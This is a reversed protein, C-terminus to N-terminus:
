RARDAAATPSEPDCHRAALDALYARDLKCHATLRFRGVALVRDPVMYAPLTRALGSRLAAEDVDPTEVLLVLRASSPSHSIRVAAARTGGLLQAATHEIEGLEVRYGRIKVQADARGRHSLLGTETATVLDGTRYWRRGDFEAFRGDNLSPDLYGGFVQPGSLLLEGDDTIHTDVTPHPSGIPITPGAPLPERAPIRLGTVWVTAEAPGYTNDLVADPAAARALSAAQPSLPEGCSVIYRVAPLSGPPLHGARAANEILSPTCTWVSVRHRALTHAATLAQMRPVSVLAAGTAWAGWLEFVSLDFTLGHSQSFVDGPGVRYNPLVSTLFADVNAHTIAVGKPRGTSGSTFILYALATTPVRAPQGSTPEGTPLEHGDIVVSDAAAATIAELHAAASPDDGPDTRVIYRVGAQSVIAANRDAPVDPSLPLVTSGAHLVALYARYCNTEREGLVAVIEGTPIRRALQSAQHAMQAYTLTTDGDVLCPENPFRRATDAFRQALTSGGVRAADSELHPGGGTHSPSDDCPQPTHGSAFLWLSRATRFARETFASLPVGYRASLALGLELQGLSTLGYHTLPRDPDLAIHEDAGDLETRLLREFDDDWPASM